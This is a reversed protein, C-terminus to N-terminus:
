ARTAVCASVSRAGTGCLSDEDKLAKKLEPVASMDLRSALEATAFVARISVQGADPGYRLVAGKARRFREGEPIFGVDRIRRALEQQAQRLKKLIAQHEPSKALNNVEDPDNQLDYLEEPPKPQWFPGPGREAQGRRPAAELGADDADPVHLRTSGTSRTRCTTASTSM